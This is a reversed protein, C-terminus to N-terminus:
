EHMVCTDRDYDWKGGRDLCSDILYWAHVRSYVLLALLLLIGLTVSWKISMKSKGLLLNCNEADSTAIKARRAHQASGTQM